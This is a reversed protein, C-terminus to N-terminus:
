IPRIPASGGLAQALLHLLDDLDFPKPLLVYGKHQLHLTRAQLQLYAASCVILPKTTLVPDPKFLERVQWGTHPQEMRMDLEIAAPNFAREDTYACDGEKGLRVAYGEQTLLDPMLQLFTTDANVVAIRQAM